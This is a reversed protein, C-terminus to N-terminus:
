ESKFRVPGLQIIRGTSSTMVLFVDAKFDGGAIWTLRLEVNGSGDGSFTGAANGIARIDAPGGETITRTLTGSYSTVPVPAITVTVPDSTAHFPVGTTAPPSMTPDAVTISVSSSGSTGGSTATFTVTHVGFDNGDPTGTLVGTTANYTLWRPTTASVTMGAPAPATASYVTGITATTPIASLARRAAKQQKSPCATVVVTAFLLVAGRKLTKFSLHREATKPELM